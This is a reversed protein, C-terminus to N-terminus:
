RLPLVQDNVLRMCDMTDGLASASTRLPNTRFGRRVIWLFDDGNLERSPINLTLYEQMTEPFTSIFRKLDTLSSGIATTQFEQIEPFKQLWLVGKRRKLDRGYRLVSRLVVRQVSNM